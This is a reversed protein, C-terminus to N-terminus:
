LLHTTPDEPVYGMEVHSYTIHYLILFMWVKRIIRCNNWNDKGGVFGLECSEATVDTFEPYRSKGLCTQGPPLLGTITSLPQDHIIM